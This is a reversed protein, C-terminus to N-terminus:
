CLYAMCSQQETDIGYFRPNEPNESVNTCTHTPSELRDCLVHLQEPLGLSCRHFCESPFIRGENVLSYAEKQHKTGIM